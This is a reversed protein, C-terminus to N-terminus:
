TGSPAVGFSPGLAPIVSVVASADRRVPLATGEVTAIVPSTLKCRSTFGIPPRGSFSIAASRAPTFVTNM